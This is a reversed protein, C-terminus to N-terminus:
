NRMEDFSLRDIGRDEVEAEEASRFNFVASIALM